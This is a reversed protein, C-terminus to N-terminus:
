MCDVYRCVDLMGVYLGDGNDRDAYRCVTLMGVYM